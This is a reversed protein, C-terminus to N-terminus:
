AFTERASPDPLTDVLPRTATSRFQSMFEARGARVAAALEGAHDAFYLFPSSAAFGQGQFFMPTGPSLLWLATLARYLGPGATQHIREGRGSPGNAVQDHNDLFTIFREPAFGLAPTGRRGHQWSYLQGQYLYGWKACS